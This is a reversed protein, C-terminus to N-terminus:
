WDGPWPLWYIWTGGVEILFGLLYAILVIAVINSAIRLKRHVRPALVPVLLRDPWRLGAATGLFLEPWFASPSSLASAVWPARDYIGIVVYRQVLSMVLLFVLVSIAAVILWTLM